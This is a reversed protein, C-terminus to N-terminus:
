WRMDLEHYVYPVCPLCMVGNWRMAALEQVSHHVPFGNFVDDFLMQVNFASMPDRPIAGHFLGKSHDRPITRQFIGESYDRAIAGHFPGKSYDRPIITGQFPGNSHGM